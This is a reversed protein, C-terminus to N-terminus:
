SELHNQHRVRREFLLFEQKLHITRLLPIM